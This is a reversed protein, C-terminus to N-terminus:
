KAREDDVSGFIIRGLLMYYQYHGKAITKLVTAV